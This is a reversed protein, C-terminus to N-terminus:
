NPWVDSCTPFERLVQAGLVQRLGGDPYSRDINALIESLYAAASKSDLHGAQYYHCTADLLGRFQGVQILHGSQDGEEPAASVPLLAYTLALVSPVLQKRVFRRCRSSHMYEPVKGM